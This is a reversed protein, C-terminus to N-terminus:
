GQWTGIQALEKEMESGDGGPGSYSTLRCPECRFEFTEGEVKWPGGCLPCPRTLEAGGPLAYHRFLHIYTPKGTAKEVMAALDRAHFNLDSRPDALAVFIEKELSVGSFWLGSHRDENRAWFFIKEMEDADIPLLYSPLQNMNQDRVPALGDLGAGYLVLWAAQNWDAHAQIGDVPTLIRVAMACGCLAELKGLWDQAYRSMHCADLADSRPLRVYAQLRTDIVGHVAEGIIQGWKPLSGLFLEMADKVSEKWEEDADDRWSGFTLQALIHSKM